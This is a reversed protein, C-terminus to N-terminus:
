KIKGEEHSREGNTIRGIPKGQRRTIFEDYAQAV